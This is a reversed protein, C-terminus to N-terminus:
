VGDLVGGDNREMYVYRNERIHPVFWHGRSNAIRKLAAYLGKAQVHEPVDVTCADWGSMRFEGVMEMAYQSVNRPKVKKPIGDREIRHIM